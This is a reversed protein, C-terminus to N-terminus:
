GDCEICVFVPSGNSSPDNKLSFGRDHNMLHAMKDTNVQAQWLFAALEFHLCYHWFVYLFNQFHKFCVEFTQEGM